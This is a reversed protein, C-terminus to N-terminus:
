LYTDPLTDPLSFSLKWVHWEEASTFSKLSILLNKLDDTPEKMLNVINRTVLDVLHFSVLNKINLANPNKRNIHSNAWNLMNTAFTCMKVTDQFIYNDITSTIWTKIDEDIKELNNKNQTAQNCYDITTSMTICNM